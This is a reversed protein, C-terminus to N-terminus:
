TAHCYLCRRPHTRQCHHACETRLFTDADTLAMMDGGNGTVLVTLREQGAATAVGVATPFGLGISQFATGLLVISDRSELDFYTNAGGIFHGGPCTLPNDDLYLRRPAHFNQTRLKLLVADVVTTNDASIFHNIRPNITQTELDVQLVEALEGFAEGFAMTFQNLGAGLVLAVDARRIESAAGTAAFGGCVVLDRSNGSPHFFGRAPASTAVDAALLDALELISQQAERTGCGALPLPNQANRLALVLDTVDPTESM